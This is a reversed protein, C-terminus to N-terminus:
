DRTPTETHPRDKLHHHPSERPLPWAGRRRGYPPRGQTMPLGKPHCWMGTRARVVGPAGCWRIGNEGGQIIYYGAHFSYSKPHRRKARHAAQRRRFARDVTLRKAPHRAHIRQPRPVLRARLRNRKDILRKQLDIVVRPGISELGADALKRGHTRITADICEADPLPAHLETVAIGHLCGVDFATQIPEGVLRVGAGAHPGHGAHLRHLNGIVLRDHDCELLRQVNEFPQHGHRKRPHHRLIARTRAGVPQLM